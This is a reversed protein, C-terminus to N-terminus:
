LINWQAGNWLLTYSGYRTVIKVSTNGDILNGSGHITINNTNANGSGDKIIYVKGNEPGTALDLQSAASVNCVVVHDIPTVTSWASTHTRHSWTQGGIFKTRRNAANGDLEIIAIGAASGTLVDASPNSWGTNLDGAFTVTPAGVVGNNFPTAQGLQTYKLDTGDSFPVNGSAGLALKAWAPSAGSGVILDGRGVTATQTDTHTSSLLNHSGAPANGSSFHAFQTGDWRLITGIITPTGAQVFNGRIGSVHTSKIGGSVDGFLTGATTIGNDGTNYWIDGSTATIGHYSM